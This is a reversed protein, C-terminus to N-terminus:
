LLKLGSNLKQAKLYVGRAVIADQVALGVSKFVTIEEPNERGKKDGAIVEGIEAAVKEWTIIGEQIPIILDGAEERAAALNDVFVKSRKITESDLERVEPKFSGIATIHTGPRLWSGDFLPVRSTTAAVILDSSRIATKKDETIIINLGLREAMEQAFNEERPDQNSIVFCKELNLVTCAAELQTRGQPGVGFLTAVRSERRALYKLAVGGAAGTRIATLFSADMIALPLGDKADFLVLFGNLAAQGFLEQNRPYVTIIKTVFLPSEDKILVPMYLLSGDYFPGSLVSRAPMEVKQQHLQLFGKEVLEIAERMNLLEKLDDKGLYIM